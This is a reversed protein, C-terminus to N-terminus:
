RDMLSMKMQTKREWGSTGFQDLVETAVLPKGIMPSANQRRITKNLDIVLFQSALGFWDNASDNGRAAEGPIVSAQAVFAIRSRHLGRALPLSPLRDISTGDRSPSAIFRPEPWQVIENVVPLFM